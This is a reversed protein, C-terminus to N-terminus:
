VENIKELFEPYWVDFKNEPLILAKDPQLEKIFEETHSVILITGKYEKLVELIIRQSMVDLYTTPEDLILLNYDHLLLKAMSLRTKEGGSLSGITQFVKEGPFLFKALMSRVMNEPLNFEERTAEILTKNLDFTELEQSYYGLKLNNDRQIEGSDPTILGVLIKILTSKGAGNPGILAIREGRVISFNINSLVEKEGYSKGLNTVRIPLEGVWSPTPLNIKIKKVEQPLDPLNIKVREIRRQLMVRQRVGKESRNKRLIKLSEEMRKIHKQEVVIHRTLLADKEAKLKLYKSYNVKYEEIKRYQTNIALVKDIYRDLLSIDHSILILTKPYSSLLNMVWKKGKVDLFNTPEDLLLIDPEVLLARALALKTKQGGSLIKPSSTLDLYSLELGELMKRLEYDGKTNNVDLYERVTASADLVPDNKVEQPVLEINGTIEIRGANPTEKGTLLNLLTTKGSGNPGVLGVKQNKEVSFVVENFILNSGHSFSLNKANIM